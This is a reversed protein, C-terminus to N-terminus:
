PGKPTFWIDQHVNQVSGIDQLATQLGKKTDGDVNEVETGPDETESRCTPQQQRYKTCRRCSYQSVGWRSSLWSYRNYQEEQELKGRIKDELM